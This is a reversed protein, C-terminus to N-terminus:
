QSPGHPEGEPQHDSCRAAEIVLDDPPDPHEPAWPRSPWPSPFPGSHAAPGYWRAWVVLILVATM